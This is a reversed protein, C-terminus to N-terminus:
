EMRLLSDGTKVSQNIAVHVEGVVCDRPALIENEMKMAEIVVLTDGRKFARGPVAFVRLVKGPLPSKMTDSTGAPRHSPASRFAASPSPAALVPSQAVPTSVAAVPSVLQAGATCEVEVDFVKGNVTMRFVRSQEMAAGCPSWEDVSSPQFGELARSAGQIMPLESAPEDGAAVDVWDDKDQNAAVAGLSGRSFLRLGYCIAMLLVLVAFVVLMDVLSLWLSSGVTDPM